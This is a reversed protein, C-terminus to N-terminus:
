NQITRPRFHVFFHNAQPKSGVPWADNPGHAFQLKQQHLLAPKHCGCIYQGNESLKRSPINNMLIDSDNKGLM